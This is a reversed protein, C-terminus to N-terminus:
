AARAIASLAARADVMAEVLAQIDAEDHAPTPTIRLREQGVPVTPYNIPQVYIAHRELLFNSLRRCHHADGILVPVLHSETASLTFGSARLLTKVRAADAQQRERLTPDAKLHRTAAPAGAALHLCLSTTFIFSDAFSRIVDILLEPGAIYGGMVGFAKALTGEILTIRDGVGERQAVGGGTAGYMDVAHVEDLYTLAEYRDALDCITAIPAIDGAMSYVNEFAIIKSRDCDVSQLLRELDVLDNHAFIFREAGSRRIGEIMSNHDLADSFIACGPLLKGLTGLSALNSIWGSTFILAVEKDHLGALEAELEVHHRNTGSINRTGGAGAGASAITEHMATLVAPDQGMGLYDNSCWVTVQKAGAASHWIANPFSGVVRELEVFTRYRGDNERHPVGSRKGM